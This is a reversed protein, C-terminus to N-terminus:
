ERNMWVTEDKRKDLEYKRKNDADENPIKEKTKYLVKIKWKSEKNIDCNLPIMKRKNNFQFIEQRKDLIFM